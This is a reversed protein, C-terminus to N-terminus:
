AKNSHRNVGVVIACVNMVVGNGVPPPVVAVLVTDDGEAEAVSLELELELLLPPIECVTMM